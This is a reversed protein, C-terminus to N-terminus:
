LEASPFATVIKTKVELVDSEPVHRKMFLLLSEKKSRIFRSSPGNLCNIMLVNNKYFGARVDKRQFSACEQDLFKNATTIIDAATIQRKIGARQVANGLLDKLSIANGYPRKKRKPRKYKYKKNFSVFIPSIM